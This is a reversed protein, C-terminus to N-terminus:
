SNSQSQTTPQPQPKNRDDMSYNQPNQNSHRNGLYQNTAKEFQSQNPQNQNQSQSHRNHHKHQVHHKHDNHHSQHIHNKHAWMRDNNGRGDEEEGSTSSNGNQSVSDSPKVDPFADIVGPISQMLGPMTTLFSGTEIGASDDSYMSSRTFEMLVSRLAQMYMHTKEIGFVNLFMCNRIYSSKGLAIYFEYIFERLPPTSLQIQKAPQSRCLEKVYRVLAYKYLITLEPYQRIANTAENDKVQHSWSSISDMGRVFMRKYEAASPNSESIVDHLKGMCEDSLKEMIFLLQLIKEDEFIGSYLNPANQFSQSNM